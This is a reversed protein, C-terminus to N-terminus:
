SPARSNAIAKRCGALKGWAVVDLQEARSQPDIGACEFVDTTVMAGLSRRLMKRRSAFGARVLEDIEEFTAVDEGVPSESRRDIRLLASEVNPRPYFVERGIRGVIRATAFYALRVTAPGYARTGPASALRDAVDSQVMVLMRQIRPVDRLLDVILPTAVSYPLNAVLLWPQHSASETGLVVNWDCTMADAQIVTVNSPMHVSLYSALRADVEVARVEAAASALAGTLSGLGPGIEVVHDERSVGAVRVIHTATNPDVLFNQGRTRSPTVGVEDLLRRIENRGLTPPGAGTTTM